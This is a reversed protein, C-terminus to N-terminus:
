LSYKEETNQIKLKKGSHLLPSDLTLPAAQPHVEPWSYIQPQPQLRYKVLVVAFGLFCM